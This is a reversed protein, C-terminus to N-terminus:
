KLSVEVFRGVREKAKDRSAAHEGVPYKGLAMRYKGPNDFSHRAGPYVILEVMAPDGQMAKLQECNAAPTWTDEDGVQIVVPKAYQLKNATGVACGPYM